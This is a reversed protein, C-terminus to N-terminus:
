HKNASTSKRGEYLTTFWQRINSVELGVVRHFYHAGKSRQAIIPFCILVDMVLSEGKAAITSSVNLM